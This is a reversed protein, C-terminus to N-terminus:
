RQPRKPSVCGSPLRAATITISELLEVDLGYECLLQHQLDARAERADHESPYCGVLEDCSWVMWARTGLRSPFPAEDLLEEIIVRLEEAHEAYCAADMAAIPTDAMAQLIRSRIAGAPLDEENPKVSSM